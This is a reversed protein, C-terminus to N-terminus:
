YRVRLRMKTVYMLTHKLYENIMAEAVYIEKSKEM